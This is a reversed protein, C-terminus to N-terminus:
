GHKMEELEVELKTLESEMDEVMPMILDLRMLMVRLTGSYHDLSQQIEKCRKVRAGAADSMAQISDEKEALAQDLNSDM